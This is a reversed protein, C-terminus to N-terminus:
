RGPPIDYCLLRVELPGNWLKHSIAPKRRMERTWLPSGSLVVV